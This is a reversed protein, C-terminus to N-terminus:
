LAFVAVKSLDLTLDEKKTLTYFLEGSGELFDFPEFLAPYGSLDFCNIVACGQRSLLYCVEEFMESLTTEGEFYNALTAIKLLTGDKAKQEYFYACLFGEIRPLDSDEEKVSVWGSVSSQKSFFLAELMEVSFVPSFDKAQSNLQKVIEPLQAKKVETLICTSPKSPYYHSVAKERLEASLPKCFGTWLLLPLDLPRHFYKVHCCFPLFSKM